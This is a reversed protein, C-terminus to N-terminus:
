LMSQSYLLAVFILLGVWKNSEFAQLCKTPRRTKILSFQFKSICFLLALILFFVNSLHYYYGFIIWALLWLIQLAYVIIYDYNGFWIASSNVGLKLDDEKDAMAYQSDYIIPWILSIFFLQWGQITVSGNLACYVMPISM